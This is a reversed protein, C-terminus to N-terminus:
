PIIIFGYRALTNYNFLVCSSVTGVYARARAHTRVVTYVHQHRAVAAAAFDAAAAAAAAAVGRPADRTRDVACLRECVCVSVCYVMQNHPHPQLWDIVCFSHKRTHTRTHARMRLASADRARVREISVGIGSSISFEGYMDIDDRNLQYFRHSRARALAFARSGIRM